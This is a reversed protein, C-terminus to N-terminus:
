DGLEFREGDREIERAEDRVEPEIDHRTLFRTLRVKHDRLGVALAFVRDQWRALQTAMGVIRDKLKPSTKQLVPLSSVDLEKTIPDIALTDAEAHEMVEEVAQIATEYVDRVQGVLQADAIVKAQKDRVEQKETAIAEREAQRKADEAEYGLRRTALESVVGALEGEKKKVRTLYTEKRMIENDKLEQKLELKELHGLTKAISRELNDREDELKEVEAERAAIERPLDSHLEEVSRHLVDPCDAGADL